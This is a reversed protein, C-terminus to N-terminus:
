GFQVRGSQDFREVWGGSSHEQVCWVGIWWGANGFYVMGYQDFEGYHEASCM